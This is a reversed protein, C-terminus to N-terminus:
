SYLVNKSILLEILNYINSKNVAEDASYVECIREFLEKLLMGDTILNIIELVSEANEFESGDPFVITKEVITDIGSDISGNLIYKVPKYHYIKTEDDVKIKADQKKVASFLINNYKKFSLTEDKLHTTPILQYNKNVDFGNNSLSLFIEELSVRDKISEFHYDLPGFHLFIGDRKLVRNFERIYNKLPILDTFYISIIVDVSNDKLPIQQADGVYYIIKDMSKQTALDNKFISECDAHCTKVLETTSLINKSNYLKFNKGKKLLADIEHIMSLSYDFSHIENLIDSLEYSLRSLGCGPLIAKEFSQAYQALEKKISSVITDIERESEPFGCWDRALYQKTDIYGVMADKGVQNVVNETNVLSYIKDQLIELDTIEQQKFVVVNDLKNTHEDIYKFDTTISEIESLLERKKKELTLLYNALYNHAHPIFIPFSNNFVPFRSACVSCILEDDEPQVATIEYNCAPCCFDKNEIRNNQILKITKM